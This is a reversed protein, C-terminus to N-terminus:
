AARAATQPRPNSTHTSVTAPFNAHRDAARCTALCPRLSQTPEDRLVKQNALRTPAIDVELAAMVPEQDLYERLCARAGVSRGALISLENLVKTASM